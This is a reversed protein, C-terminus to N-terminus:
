MRIKVQFIVGQETGFGPELTISPAEYFMKTGVGKIKETSKISQGALETNSGTITEGSKIVNTVCLYKNIIIPESDASSCATNTCVAKYVGSETPSITISYGTQGTSWKITSSCGTASLTVTEGLKFETKNVSVTPPSAFISVSLSSQSTNGLVPVDTSVVRIKYGTGVKINNPIRVLAPSGLGIRELNNFSFGNDTSIQVLFKNSPDYTGSFTYPVSILGGTCVSTQSISATTIQNSYSDGGGDISFYLTDKLTSNYTLYAIAEGKKLGRFKGLSPYYSLNQTNSISVNLKTLDIKDTVLHPYILQYNPLSVEDLKLSNVLPSAKFKIPEENIQLDISVTDMKLYVVDNIVYRAEAIIYNKINWIYNVPVVFSYIQNSGLNKRKSVFTDQFTASVQYLNATDKIQVQINITNNLDFSSGNNPTLIEIKTKDISFKSTTATLAKNSTEQNKLTLTSTSTQKPPRNLNKSAPISSFKSTKISSNLLEKIKESVLTNDTSSIHFMSNTVSFVGGSNIISVNSGTINGAAQSKLPVIFDGNEFFDAYNGLFLGLAKVIFLTQKIKELRDFYKEAGTDPGTSKISKLLLDHFEAPYNKKVFHYFDWLWINNDTPM